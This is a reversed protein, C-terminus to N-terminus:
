GKEVMKWEGQMCACARERKRERVIESRNFLGRNANLEAIASVAATIIDGTVEWLEELQDTMADNFPSYCASAIAECVNECFQPRVAECRGCTDLLVLTDICQQLPRYGALNMTLNGIFERLVDFAAMVRRIEQLAAAQTEVRQM